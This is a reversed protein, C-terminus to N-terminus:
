QQQQGSWEVKERDQVLVGDKPSNDIDYLSKGEDDVLEEELGETSTKKTVHVTMCVVDTLALVARKTGIQSLIVSGADLIYTEGEGSVKLMGSCGIFLHDTKHKKSVIVSGAPIVMRRCYMGGHFHHTTDFAPAQPLDMMAEQLNYIQEETSKAIENM